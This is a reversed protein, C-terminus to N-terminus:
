EKVANAQESTVNNDRAFILGFATGAASILSFLKAYEPYIAAGTSGFFAIAGGVTTKWSSKNM